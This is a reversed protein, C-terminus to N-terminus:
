GFGTMSSLSFEKRADELILKHLTTEAVQWEDLIGLIEEPSLDAPKRGKNNEVLESVWSWELEDYDSYLNRFYEEIELVSIERGSEIKDLLEETKKVPTILGALDTWEGRGGATKCELLGSLEKGDTFDRGGLRKIFVDGTYKKIGTEYLEVGRRVSSSKIKFNDFQYEDPGHTNEALSQLIELAAMMKGVTYPSLLSYVLYDTIDSATRRDREPWKLADRCTGSSRLNLAPHVFTEGNKEMVYSFPFVSTDINGKHHGTVLSFPGSHSPWLLYSGSGTKSGREVIGQHLPGLKYLHNSQNTGSGANMFSFMGAILLTSKHHTVTFPGAFVSVAEGHFGQCNAFFLSDSASFQKALICGQGVFCKEAIVGDTIVAGSGVIFHNMIVGHGILVPAAESGLVSGEELKLAGEVRSYEGLRVNRILGCGTLVSGKGAYGMGSSIDSAYRQILKDIQEIAASRHRFLSYIYALHSSLRDFIRISRGGSEDLVSVVTGNGFSSIGDCSIRGCNRIVVEDGIVYNALYERVNFVSVNDGIVCNHITADSIGSRFETGSSDTHTKDFIGLKVHGSFRTRSCSLPNFNEKVRILSWDEASCGRSTLLAIEEDFLQRYNNKGPKVM